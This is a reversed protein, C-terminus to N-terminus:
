FPGQKKSIKSSLTFNTDFTLSLKQPIRQCWSGINLLLCSRLGRQKLLLYVSECKNIWRTIYMSCIPVLWKIPLSKLILNKALWIKSRVSCKSRPGLFLKKKTWRKSFDIRINSIKGHKFQLTLKCDFTKFATDTSIWINLLLYSLMWLKSLLM